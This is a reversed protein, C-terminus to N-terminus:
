RRAPVASFRLPLTLITAKSSVAVLRTHCTALVAGYQHQAALQCTHVLSVASLSYVNHLLNGDNGKISAAQM